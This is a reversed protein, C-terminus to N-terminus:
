LKVDKLVRMAATNNDTTLVTLYNGTGVASAHAGTINIEADALAQAIRKGSGRRNKCIVAIAPNKKFRLRAAKLARTAKRVDNPVFLLVGSKKEEWAVFARGNVGGDAIADMAKALSGIKKRIRVWFETVKEVKAM